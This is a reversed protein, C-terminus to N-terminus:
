KDKGKPKEIEVGQSNVYTRRYFGYKLFGKGQERLIVYETMSHTSFYNGMHKATSRLNEILYQKFWEGYYGDIGDPVEPMCAVQVVFSGGNNARVVEVMRAGKIVGSTQAKLRTVFKSM